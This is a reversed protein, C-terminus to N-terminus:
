RPSRLSSNLYRKEANEADEATFETEGEEPIQSMRNHQISVSGDAWAVGVRTRNNDLHLSNSNSLEDTQIQFPVSRNDKRLFHEM